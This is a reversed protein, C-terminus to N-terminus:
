INDLFARQCFASIGIGNTFSSQVRLVLTNDILIGYSKDRIKIAKIGVKGKFIPTYKKNTYSILKNGKIIITVLEMDAEYGLLEKLFNIKDAANLKNFKKISENTAKKQVPLGYKRGVEEIKKLRYKSNKIKTQTSDALRAYAGGLRRLENRVSGWMRKIDADLNVGLFQRVTEYGINKQTGTGSGVSKLSIGMNTKDTFSIILDAISKTKKFIRGTWVIDVIKGRKRVEENLLDLSFLIVIKVRDKQENIRAIGDPFKKLFDKLKKIEKSYDRKIAYKSTLFDVFLLEFLDAKARNSKEINKNM